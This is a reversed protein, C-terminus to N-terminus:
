LFEIRGVMEEPKLCEDMLALWRITDGMSRSGPHCYVIGAHQVELSHLRLFDSDNTFLVRGERLAFSIHVEDAAGELGVEATTTVDIGRQRLGAAIAPDVHEDLHFRIM